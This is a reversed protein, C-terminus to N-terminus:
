SFQMQRKRYYVTSLLWILLLEAEPLASGIDGADTFHGIAIPLKVAVLLVSLWLMVYLLTLAYWRRKLLGVGLPLGLLAMLLSIASVTWPQTHLRVLDAISGIFTLLSIPIIIAGQFYGWRYPLPTSASTPATEVSGRDPPNTADTEAM